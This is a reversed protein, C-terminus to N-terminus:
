RKASHLFCQTDGEWPPPFDSFSRRLKQNLLLFSRKILSDITLDEPGIGEIPSIIGGLFM